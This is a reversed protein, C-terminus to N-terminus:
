CVGDLDVTPTPGVVLSPALTPRAFSIRVYIVPGWSGLGVDLVLYGSISGFEFLVLRVQNLLLFLAIRKHDSCLSVWHLGACDLRVNVHSM